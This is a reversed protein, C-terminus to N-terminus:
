RRVNGEALKKKKNNNIFSHITNFFYFFVLSTKRIKWLKYERYKPDDLRSQIQLKKITKYEVWKLLKWIECGNRHECFVFSWGSLFIFQEFNAGGLQPREKTDVAVVRCQVHILLDPVLEPFFLNISGIFFYLRVTYYCKQEDWKDSAVVKHRALKASKTQACMKTSPIKLTQPSKAKSTVFVISSRIIPSADNQFSSSYFLM